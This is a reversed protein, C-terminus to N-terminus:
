DIILIWYRMLLEVLSLVSVIIGYSFLIDEYMTLWQQIHIGLDKVYVVSQVHEIIRPPPPEFHFHYMNFRITSNSQAAVLLITYDM